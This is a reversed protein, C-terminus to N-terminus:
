RVSFRHIMVHRYSEGPRLVPSPFGPQNIADPPIETELCFSTGKGCRVGGKGVVTGDLGHAGYFHVAPQDTLLTLVRGSAPEEVVAAERLGEGHILFSHDYGGAARLPAYDADLRSGILAPETFDMPTGRVSLIEGTPIMTTATPLFREARLTLRHSAVSSGLDGSLNWYAHQIVNVITPADTTATAEWILEDEDTLTYSVRVTANGPYGEEGDPSVRTFEVRAGEAIRADWMRKHFGIEGGHLHCPVGGSVANLPLRYERGDLTFRGDRIRNGCRGVTAGFYPANVKWGELDDFGQTIDAMVGDRDPTEMSVLTAGFDTVRARLGQRNVLTFLRVPGGDDREGYGSVTVGPAHAM